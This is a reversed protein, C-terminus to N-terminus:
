AAQRVRETVGPGLRITVRPEGALSGAPTEGARSVFERRRFFRKLEKMLRVTFPVDWRVPDSGVCWDGNFDEPFARTAVRPRRADTSDQASEPLTSPQSHNLM